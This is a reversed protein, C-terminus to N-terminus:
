VSTHNLFNVILSSTGKNWTYDYIMIRILLNWYGFKYFPNAIKPLWFLLPFNRKNQKLIRGKFTMKEYKWPCFLHFILTEASFLQNVCFHFFHNSVISKTDFYALRKLWFYSHLLFLYSNLWRSPTEFILLSVFPWKVVM